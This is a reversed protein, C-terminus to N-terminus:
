HLKEEIKDQFYLKLIDFMKAVNKTPGLLTKSSNGKWFFDFAEETGKVEVETCEYVFM